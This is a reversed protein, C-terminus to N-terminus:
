FSIHPYFLIWLDTYFLFIHPFNFMLYYMDSLSTDLFDQIAVPIFLHLYWSFGSFAIFDWSYGSFYISCWVLFYWPFRANGNLYLFLLYWSFRSIYLSYRFFSTSLFDQLVFLIHFSFISLLDLFKYFIDFFLYWSVFTSSYKLMSFYWM